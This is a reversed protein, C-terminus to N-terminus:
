DSSILEILTELGNKAGKDKAGKRSVIRAFRVLIEAHLQNSSSFFGSSRKNM